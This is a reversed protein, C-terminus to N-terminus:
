NAKDGATAQPRGSLRFNGSEYSIRRRELAHINDQIEQIRKAVLELDAAPKHELFAALTQQQELKANEVHHIAQDIQSLRETTVPDM